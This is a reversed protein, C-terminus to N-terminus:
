VEQKLTVDCEIHHKGIRGSVPYVNGVIYKFGDSVSLIDGVKIDADKTTYLRLSQVSTAQPQGQTVNGNTRGIRCKFPGVTVTQKSAIHTVPDKVTITRVTTYTKDLYDSYM